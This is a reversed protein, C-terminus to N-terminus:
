KDKHSGAIRLFPKYHYKGERPKICYFEAGAMDAYEKCYAKVTHPMTRKGTTFNLRDTLGWLSINTEPLDDLIEHLVSKATKRM